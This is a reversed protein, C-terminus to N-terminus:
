FTPEDLRYITAAFREGGGYVPVAVADHDAIEECGVARDDCARGRFRLPLRNSHRADTATYYEWRTSNLRRGYLPLVVPTSGSPSGPASTAQHDESALVGVQQFAGGPMAYSPLAHPRVYGPGTQAWDTRSWGAAGPWDPWAVGTVALRGSGSGCTVAPAAHQMHMKHARMMAGMFALVAAVAAAAATVALVAATGASAGSRSVRPM